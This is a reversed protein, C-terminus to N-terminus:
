LGMGADSAPYNRQELWQCARQYLPQLEIALPREDNPLHEQEGLLSHLVLLLPLMGYIPLDYRGTGAGAHDGLDEMSLGWMADPDGQIGMGYVPLVLLGEETGGQLGMEPPCLLEANSQADLLLLPWAGRASFIDAFDVEEGLWTLSVSGLSLVYDYLANLHDLYPNLAREDM